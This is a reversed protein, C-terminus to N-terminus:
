SVRRTYGKEPEYSFYFHSPTRMRSMKKIARKVYSHRRSSTEPILVTLNKSHIYSEGLITKIGFVQRGNDFTKNFLKLRQWYEWDGGFRVNDFYGIEELVIRRFVAHAMTMKSSLTQGTELDIREFTDQIGSLESRSQFKRVITKYRNDFSVDDSDHTTFFDWQDNKSVYIGYNRSYYAGMNIKNKYVNVRPDSSFSKAIKLSNDTSNDDVINLIFDKHKQNLISQIAKGLTAESNYVPMSILITNKSM